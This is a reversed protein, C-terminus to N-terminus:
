FQLPSPMRMLYDQLAIMDEKLFYAEAGAALADTRCSPDDEETVFIWRVGRDSRLVSKLAEIGDVGPLSIECLVLDPQRHVYLAIAEEGSSCEVIDDCLGALMHRLMTRMDSSEDVIMIRM